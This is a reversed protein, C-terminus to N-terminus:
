RTAFTPDTGSGFTGSATCRWGNTAGTSDDILEGRTWGLTTPVAASRSRAEYPADFLDVTGNATCNQNLTITKATNDRATVYSGVPIGTGQISDGVQWVSTVASACRVNTITASGSATTGICPEHLKYPLMPQILYTGSALQRPVGKLTVTSGVVSSVYAVPFLNNGFEDATSQFIMVPVAARGTLQWRQPNISTFTATQGEATVTLAVSGPEVNESRYSSLAKNTMTRGFGSGEAYQFQQGPAVYYRNMNILPSHHIIGGNEFNGGNVGDVFHRFTSGSHHCLDGNLNVPPCDFACGYFHLDRVAFSLPRTDPANQSHILTCGFFSAKRSSFLTTFCTTFRAGIITLPPSFKFICGFFSTTESAVRGISYVSECFLGHVAVSSVTAGSRFLYKVAGAFNGGYVNPLQGGGQGYGSGDIWYLTNGWCTFDRVVISRSQLQGIAINSFCREGRCKDIEMIECNQTQSNPSLCWNCVFGEVRVDRWSIDTSGGISWTAPYYASLGPYKDPDSVNATAAFPDICFGAYPSFQNNRCGNVVYESDAAIFADTTELFNVWNRGTVYMSEFRVGKGHVIGIGFTDNHTFDLRTHGVGLPYGIGYPFGAEGRLKLSFGQPTTDSPNNRKLIIAETCTYTGGPIYVDPPFLDQNAIAVKCAQQILPANNAVSPSAGFWRVNIHKPRAAIWRGSGSVGTPQIVIGPLSSSQGNDALTSSASWFFSLPECDGLTYYGETRVTEGDVTGAVGKLSSITVVRQVSLSNAIKQPTTTATVSGDGGIGPITSLGM